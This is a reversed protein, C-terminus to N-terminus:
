QKRPRWTERLEERYPVDLFECAMEALGEFSMHFFDYATHLVDRKGAMEHALLLYRTYSRTFEGPALDEYYRGRLLTPSRSICIIKVDEPFSRYTLPLTPDKYIEVGDKEAQELIGSAVAEDRPYPEEPIARVRFGGGFLSWAVRRIQLHEWYGYRNHSDPGKLNRESGPNLGTAKVCFEMMFSTGSNPFGTVLVKM